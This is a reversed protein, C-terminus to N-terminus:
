AIVCKLSNVLLCWWTEEDSPIKISILEEISACTLIEIGSNKGYLSTMNTHSQTEDYNRKKSHKTPQLLQPPRSPTSSCITSSSNSTTTTSRISSVESSTDLITSNSMKRTIVNADNTFSSQVSPVIAAAPYQNLTRRLPSTFEERLTILHNETMILTCGLIRPKENMEFVRSAAQIVSQLWESCVYEDPAALQIKGSRLLIEFCHPRSSDNCRRAGLCENPLSVAWSPIKQVADNFLYLVSAKLLFYGASWRQVIGAHSLNRHMFFGQLTAGLPEDEVGLIGAPINVISYFKWIDAKDVSSNNCVFSQLPAFHDLTLQGVAPLIFGGRRACMELSSILKEAPYTGCTLLVNQMDRATNSLLVTNGMPGMLIVDLEAYPLVFKNCLENRVLEVIYITTDTLVALVACMIGDNSYGTYLKFAKMMTESEDRFLKLNRRRFLDIRMEGIGRDYNLDGGGGESCVSSRNSPSSKNMAEEEFDLSNCGMEVEMDIEDNLNKVFDEDKVKVGKVFLDGSFLRAENKLKSQFFSNKKITAELIKKQTVNRLFRNILSSKSSSTSSTMLSPLKLYSNNNSNQNNEIDNKVDSYDVIVIDDVTAMKDNPSITNFIDDFEQSLANSLPLIPSNSMFADRNFLDPTMKSKSNKRPSPQPKKAIAGTRSNSAVSSLESISSNKDSVDSTISSEMDNKDASLIDEESKTSGTLSSFLNSIKSSFLSSQNLSTSLIPTFIECTSPNEVTGIHEFIISENNIIYKNRLNGNELTLDEDAEKEEVSSETKLSSKRSNTNSSAYLDEENARRLQEDVNHVFNKNQNGFGGDLSKSFKQLKESTPMYLGVKSLFSFDQKPSQPIEQAEPAEEESGEPVGREALSIGLIDKLSGIIAKGNDKIVSSSLQHINFKKVNSKICNEQQKKDGSGDVRKNKKLCSNKPKKEKNWVSKGISPESFYCTGKGIDNVSSHTSEICDCSSSKSQKYAVVGENAQHSDSKNSNSSNSNDGSSSSESSISSSSSCTCRYFRPANLPTAYEFIGSKDIKRNDEDSIETNGYDLVESCANRYVHHSGSSSSSPSTLTQVGALKDLDEKNYESCWSYRNHPKQRGKFTIFGHEIHINDTRKSNLIDEHFSVRKKPATKTQKKIKRRYVIETNETDFTSHISSIMDTECISTTLDPHTVAAANSENNNEIDSKSLSNKAFATAILDPLVENKINSEVASSSEYEMGTSSIMSDNLDSDLLVGSDQTPSDDEVTTLKVDKDLSAEQMEIEAIILKLILNQLVFFIKENKEGGFKILEENELDCMM